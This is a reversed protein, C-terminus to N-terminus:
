IPGGADGAKSISFDHCASPRASDHRPSLLSADRGAHYDGRAMM